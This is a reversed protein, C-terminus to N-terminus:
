LKNKNRKKNRKIKVISEKTIITNISSIVSIINQSFTYTDIVTIDNISTSSFDESNKNFFTFM